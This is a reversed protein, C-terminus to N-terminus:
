KFIFFFIILLIIKKKNLRRKINILDYQTHSVAEFTKFAM